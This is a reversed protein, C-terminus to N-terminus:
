AHDELWAELSAILNRVAHEDMHLDHHITHESEKIFVWVRPGTAASSDQVRVRHGYTDLIEPGYQVLGRDNDCIREVAM